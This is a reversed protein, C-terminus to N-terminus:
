KMKSWNEIDKSNMKVYEENKAEKAMDISKNAVTIAEKYKGLKALALAEQRLMFFKPNMENSKHLWSYAQNLDKGSELYFRGANYYDAASPGALTTEISKTM